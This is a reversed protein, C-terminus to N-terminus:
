KKRSLLYGILVGGVILPVLIWGIPFEPVVPPAEVTFVAKITTDSTIPGITAPNSSGVNANNVEWHNFYYKVM